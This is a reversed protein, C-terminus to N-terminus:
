LRGAVFNILIRRTTTFNERLRVQGRDKRRFLFIAVEPAFGAVVQEGLGKNEEGELTRTELADALITAAMNQRGAESDWNLGEGANVEHVVYAKIEGKEDGISLRPQEPKSDAVYVRNELEYAGELLQLYPLVRIKAEYSTSVWAMAVLGAVIGIWGWVWGGNVLLGTAALGVLGLGAVSALVRRRYIKM